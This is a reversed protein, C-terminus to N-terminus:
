TNETLARPVFRVRDTFSRNYTHICDLGAISAAAIQAVLDLRWLWYTGRRDVLSSNQVARETLLYGSRWDEGDGYRVWTIFKGPLIERREVSINASRIDIADVVNTARVIKFGPITEGNTARFDIEHTEAASPSAKLALAILEDRAVFVGSYIVYYAALPGHRPDFEFRFDGHSALSRPPLDSTGACPASNVDPAELWRPPGGYEGPTHLEYFATEEGTATQTRTFTRSQGEGVLRELDAISRASEPAPADPLRKTQGM